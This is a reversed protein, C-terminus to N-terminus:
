YQQQDLGDLAAMADAPLDWSFVDLNQAQRTPNASKPLCVHGKQVSWKVLVQAPTKDVQQAVAVLTPDAFNKGRTLPSYAQIAINRAACYDVIARQQLWPQLHVQNVAPVVGCSNDGQLLEDLHERAYNSVGISKVLGMARLRVLDKWAQLRHPSRPWHILYLDVWPLGMEQLQREVTRQVQDQHDDWVKTTVWISERALGSARVARGVDAENKYYEATDIHRYGLSLASLVADYTEQGPESKYVGLGVRPMARGDNLVITTSM